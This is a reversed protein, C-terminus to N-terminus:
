PGPVLLGEAPDNGFLLNQQSAPQHCCYPRPPAARYRVGPGVPGKLFNVGSFLQRMFETKMLKRSSSTKIEVHDAKPSGPFSPRTCLPDEATGPVRTKMSEWVKEKIMELRCNQCGFPCSCASPFVGIAKKSHSGLESCSWSDCLPFFESGWLPCGPGEVPQVDNGEESHGDWPSPRQLGRPM